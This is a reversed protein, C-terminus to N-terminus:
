YGSPSLEDAMTRSGRMTLAAAKNGVFWQDSCYAGSTWLTVTPLRHLAFSSNTAPKM